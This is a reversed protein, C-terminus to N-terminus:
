EKKDEAEEKKVKKTEEEAEEEAKEEPVKVSENEDNTPAPEIEQIDEVEPQSIAKEIDIKQLEKTEFVRIDCFSLPYVKKLKPLLM